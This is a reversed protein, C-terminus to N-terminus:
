PNMLVELTQNGSINLSNVTYNQYGALSVDLSYNNGATLDTFINQGPTYCGSVYNVAQSTMVATKKSNTTSLFAKYRIYRDNDHVSSISSGSVTYYTSATGDPGKYNWTANDNNSAIQFKLTTAADQSTPQWVLTTFNSSAGTDYTSSEMWGSLAYNGSTKKLRLGTPASNSDINGDDQFYRTANNPPIPNFGAQGAGGSWDLQSWVSGGTIAYYDQPQSGGKQLHVNAGELALGTSADKVIVLLSSKTPDQPGLIMTYTLSTGPPVTITQIPSTGYIIYSQGSTLTPTYTDWEINNLAILGSANSTYSNNFKYVTPSTGIIKAGRINVGIGSIAACNTDLTKVTLNSLADIAFSVQTVTGNVITADPKTPNPNGVSIPYTQDSSYGAKTVVIHYGNVYSPLGVELWQGASDSTRDLIIDPNIALNEIHISVGEVPQGQSNFVKILLAGGSALSELGKPSITSIFQSVVTTTLNQIYMNVQKYDNPVTDTGALATGDAPDDIYTVEYYVKYNTGELTLTQPNNLDPLTGSPNGNVTGLQSYPLNRVIELENAAYSSVVTKERALKVSRNLIQTVGLIGSILIAFIVIAVVAEIITFAGEKGKRYIKLRFM